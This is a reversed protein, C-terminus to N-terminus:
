SKKKEKRKLSNKKQIIEIEVVCKKKKNIKGCIYKSQTKQQQEKTQRQFSLSFFILCVLYQIKKESCIFNFNYAHDIHMAFCYKM